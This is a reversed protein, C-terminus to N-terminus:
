KYYKHYTQCFSIVIVLSSSVNRRSKKKGANCAKKRKIDSSIQWPRWFYFRRLLGYLARLFLLMYLVNRLFYFQNYRM